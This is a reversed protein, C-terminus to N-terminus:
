LLDIEEPASVDNNNNRDLNQNESGGYLSMDSNSIGNEVNGNGEFFSHGNRTIKKKLEDSKKKFNLVKQKKISKTLSSFKNEAILHFNTKKIIKSKELKTEVIKIFNETNSDYLNQQKNVHRFFNLHKRFKSDRIELITELFNPIASQYKIADFFVTGYVQIRLFNELFFM